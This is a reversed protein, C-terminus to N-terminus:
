PRAGQGAAGLLLTGVNELPLPTHSTAVIMGGQARHEAFVPGLREVSAVDLGVTPEDLLWLQAGSALVRALATRRKQGSSLLRAPVDWLPLLGVARVAARLREEAEARSPAALGAWFLLNESVTLMPKLANDHGLYAVREPRQIIGAEARLTGALLKLLSSKGVGNPGTVLLAAGPRVTLSVGTFVTRGGRRCAVDEARLLIPDSAVM